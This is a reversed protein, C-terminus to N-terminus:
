LDHSSHGALHEEYRHGVGGSPRSHTPPSVVVVNAEPIVPCVPPSKTLRSAEDALQKVEVSTREFTARDEAIQQRALTLDATLQAINREKDAMEEETHGCGALVVLAALRSAWRTHEM